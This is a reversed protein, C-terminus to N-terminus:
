AVAWRSGIVLSGAYAFKIAAWLQKKSSAPVTRVNRERVWRSGPVNFRCYATFKDDRPAEVVLVDGEAVIRVAGLREAIKEALTSYGLASLALTMAAVRPGTQDCAIRYVLRNAIQKAIAHDDYLPRMADIKHSAYDAEGLAARVEDWKPFLSRADLGCAKRCTPGVGSNVSEADVLPRSCVACATAVMATAPANEYTSM